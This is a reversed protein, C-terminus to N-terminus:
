PMMGEWVKGSGQQGSGTGQVDPLFSFLFSLAPGTLHSLPSLCKGCAGYGSVRMTFLFGVGGLQGRFETSAIVEKPLKKPKSHLM